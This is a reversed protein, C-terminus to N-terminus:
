CKALRRCTTLHLSYHCAKVVSADFPTCLLGDSPLSPTAASWCITSRLWKSRTPQDTLGTSAIALYRAISSRRDNAVTITVTVALPTSARALKQYDLNFTNVNTAIIANNVNSINYCNSSFVIYKVRLKKFVDTSRRAYM